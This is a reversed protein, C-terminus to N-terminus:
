LVMSHTLNVFFTKSHLGDKIFKDNFIEVDFFNFDEQHYITNIFKTM